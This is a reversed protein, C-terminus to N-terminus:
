ASANTAQSTLAAQSARANLLMSVIVVILANLSMAVLGRNVEPMMDWYPQFAPLLLVAYGVALGAAVGLATARRWLLALFVGPALMGISTYASLAIQVLSQSGGVTLWVAIVAFGVTSLRSILLTSQENLRPRLPLVVNRTFISGATLLLVSGPVLALLCATGTFIGVLWPHYHDSVFQLLVANPDNGLPHTGALLAGFGLLIVLFYSLSYLPQFVANRRIAWEDTAAYCLQFMQPFVYSSLGVNVATTMIWVTGLNAAPQRGPLTGADPFRIEIQKFIDIISIAGVHSAATLSLTVVILLMLIDKVAAAFAASRLGAFFVFGIMIIAAAIAAALQSIDSVTLQLIVGLATIQM